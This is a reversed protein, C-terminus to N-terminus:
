HWLGSFGWGEMGLAIPSEPISELCSGQRDAFPDRRALLLLWAFTSCCLAGGIPFTATGEPHRCHVGPRQERLRQEQQDDEVDPRVHQGERLPEHGERARARVGRLGAGHRVSHGDAEVPGASVQM